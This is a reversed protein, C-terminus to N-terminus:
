MMPEQPWDWLLFDFYIMHCIQGILTCLKQFPYKHLESFEKSCRSRSQVFACRKSIMKGKREDQDDQDDDDDHARSSTKTDISIWNTQRRGSESVSESRREKISHIRMLCSQISACTKFYNPKPETPLTTAESILPRRNSDLWHFFNIIFM